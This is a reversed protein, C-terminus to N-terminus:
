QKEELAPVRNKQLWSIVDAQLFRVRNSIKIFPIRRNEILSYIGKPTLRLLLAVENVTLLLHSNFAEDQTKKSEQFREQM